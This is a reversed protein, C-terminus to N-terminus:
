LPHYCIKEGNLDVGTCTLGEPCQDDSECYIMCFYRPALNTSDTLLGCFEIGGSIDPCYTPDVTDYHCCEVSCFGKNRDMHNLQHCWAHLHCENIRVDCPQSWDTLGPIADCETDVSSDPGADIGTDTDISDTDTDTSDTDISTGTETESESETDTMTDTDSDADSGGCMSLFVIYPTLGIWQLRKIQIAM